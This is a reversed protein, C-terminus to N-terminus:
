LTQHIICLFVICRNEIKDCGSFLLYTAIKVDRYEAGISNRAVIM